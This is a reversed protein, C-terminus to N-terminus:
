DKIIVLLKIQKIQSLQEIYWDINNDNVSKYPSVKSKLLKILLDKDQKNVCEIIELNLKDVKFFCIFM